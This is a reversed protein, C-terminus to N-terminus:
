TNMTHGEAHLEMAGPQHEVVWLGVGPKMVEKGVDPDTSAGPVMLQNKHRPLGPYLRSDGTPNQGSFPPTQSSAVRGSPTAPQAFVQPRLPLLSVPSLSYPHLHPVKLSDLPKLAWIMGRPQGRSQFWVCVWCCATKTASLDPGLLDLCPWVSLGLGARTGERRCLRPFAGTLTLSCSQLGVTTGQCFTPGSKLELM